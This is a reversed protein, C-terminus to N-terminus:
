FDNALKRALNNDSPYHLGYSVRSKAIREAISYFKLTRLPYKKSLHKAIVFAQLAHGSPYAPTKATESPYPKIKSNVQAPRPRNYYNKLAIIVPYTDTVINNIEEKNYELGAEDLYKFFPFRPSEDSLFFYEKDPKKMAKEVLKSEKVSDPYKHPKTRRSYHYGKEM